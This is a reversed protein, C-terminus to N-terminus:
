LVQTKPETKIKVSKIHPNLKQWYNPIKDIATVNYFEM